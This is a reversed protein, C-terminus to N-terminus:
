STKLVNEIKKIVSRVFTIYECCEKETVDIGGDYLDMNRKQRMLDAIVEIDEDKLIEAAASLMKIHHGPVSRVKIGKFALLAICGKLLANYSYNFRVNLYQDNEAINVAEQASNLYRQIQDKSYKFDRFYKKDM